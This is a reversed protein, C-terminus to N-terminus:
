KLIVGCCNHSCQWNGIKAEKDDVMDTFGFSSVSNHTKTRQVSETLRMPSSLLSARLFCPM